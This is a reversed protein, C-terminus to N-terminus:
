IFNIPNSSKDINFNLGIEIMKAIEWYDLVDVMGVFQWIIVM